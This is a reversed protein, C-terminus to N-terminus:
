PVPSSDWSNSRGIPLGQLGPRDLSSKYIDNRVSSLLDQVLRGMGNIGVETQASGSRVRAMRKLM